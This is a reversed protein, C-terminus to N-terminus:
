WAIKRYAAATATAKCRDCIYQEDVPIGKSKEVWEAQERTVTPTRCVQCPILEFTKGWITREAGEESFQIAATPCSRACALCGICVESAENFPTAVEKDVGRNVRSIAGTVLQQCIRTCIGCLICNDGDRDVEYEQGTVGYETALKRIEVAHPSRALLLALVEARAKCVRDSDTEVILGDEVPYLCATVLKSWGDWQPRTIEVLCLRCAGSPEVAEHHCLSPIEIGERRAVALLPEGKRATVPRGNITLESM